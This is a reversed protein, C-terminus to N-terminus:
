QQRAWALADMVAGQTLGLQALKSRVADAQNLRLPTLIIQQGKLAVEFYDSGGLQSVIAKPLTIQNKVTMKALMQTGKLRFNKTIKSVKQTIEAKTV